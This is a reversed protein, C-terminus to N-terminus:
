RSIVMKHINTQEATEIKVFYIGAGANSNATDWHLSVDSSSSGTWEEVKRGRIDYAAVSYWGSESTFKIGVSGSAPNASTLYPQVINELSIDTDFYENTSLVDGDGGGKGTADLAKTANIIGWGTYENWGPPKGAPITTSGQM